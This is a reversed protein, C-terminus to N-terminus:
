SAAEGRRASVRLLARSLAAPPQLLGELSQRRAFHPLGGRGDQDESDSRSRGRFEASGEGQVRLSRAFGVRQAGLQGVGRRLLWSRSLSELLLPAAGYGGQSRSAVRGFCDDRFLLELPHLHGPGRRLCYHRLQRARPFRPPLVARYCRVGNSARRDQGHRFRSEAYPPNRAVGAVCTILTILSPLLAIRRKFAPVKQIRAYGRCMAYTAEKILDYEKQIKELVQLAAPLNNPTRKRKKGKEVVDNAEKLRLKSLAVLATMKAQLRKGDGKPRQSQLTQFITKLEKAYRTNKELLEPFREFLDASPFGDAEIHAAMIVFGQASRKGASFHFRLWERNRAQDKRNKSNLDYPFTNQKLEKNSIVRVRLPDRLDTSLTPPKVGRRLSELLPDLGPLSDAVAREFWKPNSAAGHEAQAGHGAEPVPPSLPSPEPVYAKVPKAQDRLISRVYSASCDAIGAIDIPKLLPNNRKTDLIIKKRAKDKFSLQQREREAIGDHLLM